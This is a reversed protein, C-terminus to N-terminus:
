RPRTGLSSRGNCATLRSSVQRPVARSYALWCYSLLGSLRACLQIVELLDRTPMNALYHRCEQWSSSQGALASRPTPDAVLM